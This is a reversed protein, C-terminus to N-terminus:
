RPVVLSGAALSLIVTYLVVGMIAFNDALLHQLYLIGCLDVMLIIFVTKQIRSM